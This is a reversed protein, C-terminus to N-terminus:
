QAMIASTRDILVIYLPGRLAYVSYHGGRATRDRYGACGASKRANKTLLFVTIKLRAYVQGRSHRAVFKDPM